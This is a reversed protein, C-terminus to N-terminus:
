SKEKIYLKNFSRVRNQDQKKIILYVTPPCIITGYVWISSVTSLYYKFFFLGLPTGILFVLLGIITMTISTKAKFKNLHIKSNSGCNKCNLIKFDGKKIAYEARTEEQIFFSLTKQCSNCDSYIFM